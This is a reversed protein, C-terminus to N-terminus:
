LNLQEKSIRTMENKKIKGSATRPFQEIFMIYRPIKYNSIKEKCFNRVEEETLNMGSKVHIWCCLEEGLREDPVGCIQVELIAPHTSLFSEVESTYINEGGRIVMDKIRGDIKLHGKENLVGIDGTHFWKSKDIAEETKVKDNWYGSFISYGRALVEGKTNIPVIRGEEDIIKLELEEIPELFDSIMAEKGENLNTLSIVPSTETLGYAIQVKQIKLDNQLEKLLGGPAPSGGITVQKLSSIDHHLLKYNKVIDIIMTPTGFLVNCRYKEITKLSEISDFGASPFVITGGHLIPSLTGIVCGFTHFLPVQCCLIPRMLDFQARRASYIANNIINHHTLVAGKPLSTTGSTFQINVPDDCQILKETQTLLTDSEKNRSDSVDKFRLTGKKHDDSIIIISNLDPLKESRLNKPNQTSLDPIIRNFIEYYDQKRHKDCSIVAKCSVSQLSHEVEQLQSLFNLNVLILGAKGAAFQTLSWEYCNPSYIAIRDGRKLGCAIFGSALTEVEKKFELYTKSIGQHNSAFAISDGYTDAATDLLNGLTIPTLPIAGNKFYYSRNEKQPVAGSFYRIVTYNRKFGHITRILSNVKMKRFIM